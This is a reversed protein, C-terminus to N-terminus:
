LIGVSNPNEVTHKDVKLCYSTEIFKPVAFFDVYLTKFCTQSLYNQFKPNTYFVKESWDSWTIYISLPGYITDMTSM